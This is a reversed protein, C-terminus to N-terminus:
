SFGKVTSNPSDRLMLITAISDAMGYFLEMDECATFNEGDNRPDGTRDNLVFLNDFANPESSDISLFGFLDATKIARTGTQSPLPLRLPFAVISRFRGLHAREKFAKESGPLEQVDRVLVWRRRDETEVSFSAYIHSQALKLSNGSNRRDLDQSGDRFVMQLTRDPPEGVLHKVTVSFAGDGAGLRRRLFKRIDEVVRELGRDCNYRARLDACRRVEEAMHHQLVIAIERTEIERRLKASAETAEAQLESAVQKTESRAANRRIEAEKLDVHVKKYLLLYLATSVAVTAFTVFVYVRFLRLPPLETGELALHSLHTVELPVGVFGIFEVITFATRGPGFLRAKWWRWSGYDVGPESM